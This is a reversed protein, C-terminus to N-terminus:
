LIDFGIDKRYYKGDFRIGEAIKYSKELAEKANTDFSTIALVRGGNTKLVENEKKTGAHYILSETNTPIGKIGKGKEYSEPYGGSVLIVTTASEDIFELQKQMNLEGKAAGILDPLLDSKIRPLVAETEPDGLRCNYEIVFPEGGCNILGFY